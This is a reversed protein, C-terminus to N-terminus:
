MWCTGRGRNAAGAEGEGESVVDSCLRADKHYASASNSALQEFVEGEGAKTVNVDDVQVGNVQGVEIALEQESLLM